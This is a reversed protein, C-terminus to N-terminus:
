ARELAGRLAAVVAGADEIQPYHGLEEFREVPVHPRLEILAELVAVTAVPDQM